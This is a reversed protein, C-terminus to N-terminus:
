EHFGPDRVDGIPSVTVRRAAIKQLPGPSKVLYSFEDKKDRDRADANAEHCKYLAIRGDTRIWAVVFVALEGDIQVKLVDGKSIRMVLSRGGIGTGPNRLGAVGSRRVIQYAAFTSVVEGAWRGADTRIIEICYNSDGKYGKYPRASGDPLLGHRHAAKPESFEIVSLRESERVRKGDVVKTHRVVGAGVLGYATDKHMQGEYNHDPRHSVIVSGVARAVHERYNPFPEPMSEVLRSLQQDRASASANAFRQLLGQDTVGIVCADVAHHRHDNRNKEGKLGLVANLGFKGRLLATLRGPIVRVKNPASVLSLYERAIRSLYATDTLARALFDRDERLWREYGDVAFRKAKEKPMANARQLITAYEYGSQSEGFAEFPTRNGKDRNARRLSVTKNNLSDDLTKSFPLIHEIEVDDSFLRTVSIQEGTYPCRRDAADKINLEVWLKMKQLDIATADHGTVAQIDTRWQENQTQRAAQERQIEIKRERSQKLERTVEVIVESPNGYRKILANVVKRLQNLGIHVTPNAIRGFRREPPDNPDGTGFGVHRQLPEGYYPLETLLIEGTQEGHSLASHSAFGAAVVAKDYTVVGAKLEPLIRALAKRSLNGYGDPLRADAIREARAEDLDFEKTLWGILASEDEEKLLAWVIEDQRELPFGHWSAGFMEDDSLKAATLNGKLSDRKIDELNFRVSGGLKLLTAIKTFTSKSHENLVRAVANRQDLTVFQERADDTLIALHNLEQYIRFQQVSPLALPAREEEPLLTCRGPKVPKLPRQHFLIGKLLILAAESYRSQDFGSQKAWLLDFEHEVMARDIYLDYSKLIRSKGDERAVRTERYRARVPERRSHRKFLWEGVTRLGEEALGERMRKIAFKLASSENDAKDTKRNSKFGRRQNLHFVARAFEEPALRHDLGRARLEYPDLSDLAKRAEEDQPFFRLEILASMLKARRKLKRDRNRRMARAERRTVALSSGDQPNRGDGFIRVGARIVAIPDDDANLRLMAWGISTTGLDLALRYRLKRTEM